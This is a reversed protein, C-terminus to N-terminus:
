LVVQLLFLKAAQLAYLWIWSKLNNWSFDWTRSFYSPQSGCITHELPPPQTRGSVVTSVVSLLRRNNTKLKPWCGAKSYVFWAPQDIVPWAGVRFSCQLTFQPALSAGVANKPLCWCSSNTRKCASHSPSLFDSWKSPSSPLAFPRVGIHM